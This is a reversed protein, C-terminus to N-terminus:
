DHPVPRDTTVHLEVTWSSGQRVALAEIDTQLQVQLKFEPGVARPRPLEKDTIGEIFTESLGVESSLRGEM